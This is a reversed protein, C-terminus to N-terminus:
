KVPNITITAKGTPYLYTEVGPNHRATIPLGEFRNDAEIVFILKKTPGPQLKWRMLFDGYKILGLQVDSYFPKDLVKKFKEDFAIIRPAFFYAKGYGQAAHEGVADITLYEPFSDSQLCRVQFNSLVGLSKDQVIIPDSATISIDFPNGMEVNQCDSAHERAIAEEDNYAPHKDAQARLNTQYDKIESVSACSLLLALTLASISIKLFKDM